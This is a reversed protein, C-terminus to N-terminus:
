GRVESVAWTGHRRTLTLRLESLAGLRLLSVSAEIQRGKDQPASLVVNQVKATPVKVKGPQRPPRAKLAKLLAPTATQAFTQKVEANTRGVEYLVFAGSFDQATHLAAADDAVGPPISSPKSNTAATPSTSDAQAQAGAQLNAQAEAKTVKSASNFSPATGHLTNPKASQPKTDAASPLSSNL